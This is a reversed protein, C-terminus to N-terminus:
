HVLYGAVWYYKMLEVRIDAAFPKLRKEIDIPSPFNKVVEHESGNKLKRIQYTNGSEDRRFIPTSSGEFFRNDIM